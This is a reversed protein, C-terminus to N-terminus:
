NQNLYSSVNNNQQLNTNFYTSSVSNVSPLGSIVSNLPLPANNLSFNQPTPLASGQSSSHQQQLQSTEQQFQKYPNSEQNQKYPNSEQNQEKNQEKELEKQKEQEEKEKQAEKNLSDILDKVKSFNITDKNNTIFNQLYLTDSIEIKSSKDVDLIVLKRLKIQASLDQGKFVNNIDVSPGAELTYGQLKKYDVDIPPDNPNDTNIAQVVTNKDIKAVLYPIEGEIPKKTNKNVKRKIINKTVMRVNEWTEIGELKNLDILAEKNNFIAKYIDNMIEKLKDIMMNDALYILACWSEKNDVSINKYIRCKSIKLEINPNVLTGSDSMLKFPLRTITQTKDGITIKNETIGGEARLRGPQYREIPLLVTNTILEKKVIREPQNEHQTLQNENQVLQNTLELTAM